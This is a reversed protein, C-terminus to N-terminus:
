FIPFLALFLTKPLSRRKRSRPSQEAEAKVDGLFSAMEPAHSTERPAPAAADAAAFMSGESGITFSTNCWPCRVRDGVGLGATKLRGHCNSCSAALKTTM